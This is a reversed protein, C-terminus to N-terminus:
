FLIVFFISLLVHLIRGKLFSRYSISTTSLIGKIQTHISLGGFSIFSIAIIEKLFLSCSVNRLTNLGQTLELLGSVITKLFPNSLPILNALMYYFCITGLIFLLTDLAKKLANSLIVGFDLSSPTIDSKQPSIKEKSRFLFGIIINVSYHIGIIKLVSKPSTPFLLSLMNILFLPNSFFTFSLLHNAEKLTIMNKMTFEKLLFASSPTGCLLSMIFIFVGNSSTHFLHSFPKGLVYAFYVPFQYSIMLDSLVFMPFLSPFVQTFFLTSAEIIKEKVSHSNLLIFILLLLLTLLIFFNKKAKNM